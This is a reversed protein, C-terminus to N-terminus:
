QVGAQAPAVLPHSNHNHTRHRDASWQIRAFSTILRSACAPTWHRQVNCAISPLGANPRDFHSITNFFINGLRQIGAQALVIFCNLSAEVSKADDGPETQM